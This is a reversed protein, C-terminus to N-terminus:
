NKIDESSHPEIEADCIPCRDNCQHNWDDHWKTGDNPCLYYNRFKLPANPALPLMGVTKEIMTKHVNENM